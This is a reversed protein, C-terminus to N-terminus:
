GVAVGDGRIEDTLQIPQFSRGMAMSASPMATTSTGRSASTDAWRLRHVPACRDCCDLNAM